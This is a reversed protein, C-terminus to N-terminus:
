GAVLAVASREGHSRHIAEQIALILSSVLAVALAAYVWEDIVGRHATLQGYFIGGAVLSGVALACMLLTVPTRPPQRRSPSFQAISILSLGSIVVALVCIEQLPSEPTQVCYTSFANYAGDLVGHNCLATITRGDDSGHALAHAGLPILGVIAECIWQVLGNFTARVYFSRKPKTPETPAM